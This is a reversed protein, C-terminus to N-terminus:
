TTKFHCGQCSQCGTYTRLSIRLLKLLLLRIAALGALAAVILIHKENEQIHKVNEMEKVEHPMCANHSGLSGVNGLTVFGDDKQKHKPPTTLIDKRTFKLLRRSGRKTISDCTMLIGSLERDVFKDFKAGFKTKDVHDNLNYYGLLDESKLIEILEDRTMFAEPKKDYCAEFVLKMEETESDIHVGMNKVRGCPSGMGSSEM